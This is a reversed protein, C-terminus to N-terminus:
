GGGLVVNQRRLSTGGVTLLRTTKASRRRYMAIPDHSILDIEARTLERNWVNILAIQVDPATSAVTTGIRANLTSLHACYEEVGSPNSPVFTFYGDDVGDFYMTAYDFGLGDRGVGTWTVVVSYWRGGVLTTNSPYYTPTAPTLPNDGNAVMLWLKDTNNDVYLRYGYKILNVAQNDSWFITSEKAGASHPYQFVAQISFQDGIANTCFKAPLAAASAAQEFGVNGRMYMAPGINSGPVADYSSWVANSGVSSWGLGFTLDPIYRAAYGACPGFNVKIGDWLFPYRSVSRSRAPSIM